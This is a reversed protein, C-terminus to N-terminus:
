QSSGKLLEIRSVIRDKMKILADWAFFDEDDGSKGSHFNEHFISSPMSYKVEYHRLKGTVEALDSEEKQLNHMILKKIVSETLEDNGDSEIYKELVRIDEVVPIPRIRTIKYALSVFFGM